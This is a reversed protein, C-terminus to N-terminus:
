RLGWGTQNQSADKDKDKNHLWKQLFLKHFETLETLLSSRRNDRDPSAGSDPM